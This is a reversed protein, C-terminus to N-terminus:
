NQDQDNTASGLSEAEYEAEQDATMETSAPVVSVDESGGCGSFSVPLCFLATCVAWKFKKM